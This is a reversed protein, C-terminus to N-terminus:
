KRAWAIVARSQRAAERRSKFASKNRKEMKKSKLLIKYVNSEIGELNFYSTVSVVVLGVLFVGFMCTVVSILRGFFSKPSIDGYGVTTM